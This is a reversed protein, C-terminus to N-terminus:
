IREKREAIVSDSWNGRSSSTLELVEEIEPPSNADGPSKQGGGSIVCLQEYVSALGRNDLKELEQEVKKQLISQSMIVEAYVPLQPQVDRM